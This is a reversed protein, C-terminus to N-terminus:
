PRAAEAEAVDIREDIRLRMGAVPANLSSTILREGPEIGADVLVADDHRWAINVERIDLVGDDYVWITDGDHLDRRRIRAVRGGVNADIAIDVYSDLLLPAASTQPDLALPDGIDVLVRAMQGQPDLDSLVRVVEGRRQLTGNGADYSVIARAGAREDNRADVYSLREVPVAVQVRFRDTGVLRAAQSQTSLTQGLDVLESRVVADFPARVTTRELNVEAQRLQARAAAVAAEAARRQPERLALAANQVAGADDGFLEWERQAVEQRGVELALSAQAEALQTRRTEVAIRYDTPDIRFLIDGAAFHGGPTLADSVEVVVGGVQPQVVVDRAPQVVGLAEITFREDHFHVPVTEVLPARVQPEVREPQPTTAILAAAIAVGGGIVAIPLFRRSLTSTTM